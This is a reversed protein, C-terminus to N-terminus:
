TPNAEEVIWRDRVPGPEVTRLAMSRPSISVSGPRGTEFGPRRLHVAQLQLQAGRLRALDAEERFVDLHERPQTFAQGCPGAGARRVGEERGAVRGGAPRDCLEDEHEVHDGHAHTRLLHTPTLREREVVELLPERDGAKIRPACVDHDGADGEVGPHGVAWSRPEAGGVNALRRSCPRIFFKNRFRAARQLLSIFGLHPELQEAFIAPNSGCIGQEDFLFGVFKDFAFPQNTLGVALDVLGARQHQGEPRHHAEEGRVSKDLDVLPDGSILNWGLPEARTRLVALTQPHVEVDLLGGDQIQMVKMTPM